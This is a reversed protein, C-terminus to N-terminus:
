NLNDESVKVAAPLKYSKLQIFLLTIYIKSTNRQHAASKNLTSTLQVQRNVNDETM